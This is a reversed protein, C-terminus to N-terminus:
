RRKGQRHKDIEQQIEQETLQGYKAIKKDIEKYLERMEKQLDPVSLKKLIVADKVSYVLLKSRPKIGLRDRIYSPIVVQGKDSVVIIDPEAM